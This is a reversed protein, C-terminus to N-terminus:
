AAGLQYGSKLALVAGPAGRLSGAQAEGFASRSTAGIAFDTLMGCRISEVSRLVNGNM